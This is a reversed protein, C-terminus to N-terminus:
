VVVRVGWYSRVPAVAIMDKYPEVTAAFAGSTENARMDDESGWFSISKCVGTARDCFFYAGRFGAESKYSTVHDPWGDIVESLRDVKMSVDAVRACSVHGADDAPVQTCVELFHLEPESLRHDSAQKVIAGLKQETNDMMARESDFVVVSLTHASDGDRLFYGQVLGAFDRVTNRWFEDVEDFSSPKIDVYNIRGHM